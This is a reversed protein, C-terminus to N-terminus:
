PTTKPVDKMIGAVMLDVIYKRARALADTSSLDEDPLVTQYLPLFALYSQCIQLVLTFQIVPFFDSRILGANYANRFFREFLVLDDTNVDMRSIIKAYTEWGEAMEWLLIRVFRPREVLYDFIMPVITELLARFANADSAVTEDEMLPTLVRTQIETMEMDARKIVEMYLGLKDGFYQFLLSKNYSSQAAIM